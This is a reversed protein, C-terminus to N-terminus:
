EKDGILPNFHVTAKFYPKAAGAFLEMENCQLMRRM